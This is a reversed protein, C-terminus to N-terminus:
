QSSAQAAALIAMAQYGKALHNAQLIDHRALKTIASLPVAIVSIFLFIADGETPKDTVTTDVAYESVTERLDTVMFNAGINPHVLDCLASYWYPFGRDIAPLKEICKHTHTKSAMGVSPHTPRAEDFIRLAQETAISDLYDQWHFSSGSVAKYCLAIHECINVVIETSQGPSTNGKRLNKRQMKSLQEGRERNAEIKAAFFHFCAAHEMIARACSAAVLLNGNDLSDLMGECYARLKYTHSLTWYLSAGEAAHLLGVEANGFTAEAAKPTIEPVLEFFTAKSPAERLLSVLDSFSILFDNIAEYNKFWNHNHYKLLGSLVWEPFTSRVRENDIMDNTWRTMFIQERISEATAWPGRDNSAICSLAISGYDPVSSFPM